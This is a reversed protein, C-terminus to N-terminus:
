SKSFAHFTDYLLLFSKKIEGEDIDGRAAAELLQINPAFIIRKKRPSDPGGKGVASKRSKKTFERENAAWRKLQQARRKRALKLRDQVSLRELSPMEAVLEEHTTM